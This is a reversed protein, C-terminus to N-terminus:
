DNVKKNEKSPVFRFRAAGCVPRRFLEWVRGGRNVLLWDCALYWLSLPFLAPPLSPLSISFYEAGWNRSSCAWVSLSGAAVTSSLFLRSVHTHTHLPPPWWPTIFVWDHWGKNVIFVGPHVQPSEEHTKLQHWDPSVKRGSPFLFDTSQVVTEDDETDLSIFLFIFSLRDLRWREAWVMETEYFAATSQNSELDSLIVPFGSYLHKSQNLEERGLGGLM